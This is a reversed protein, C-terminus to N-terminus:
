EPPESVQPEGERAAAQEEAAQLEMIRLIRDLGPPQAPAVFFALLWLVGATAAAVVLWGAAVVVVVVGAVLLLDTWQGSVWGRVSALALLATVVGVSVAVVGVAATARTM